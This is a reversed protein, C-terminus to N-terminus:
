EAKELREPREVWGINCNGEDSLFAATACSLDSSVILTSNHTFCWRIVTDPDPCFSGRMWAAHVNPDLSDDWADAGAKRMVEREHEALYGPFLTPKGECRPCSGVFNMTGPKASNSLGQGRGGCQDCPRIM